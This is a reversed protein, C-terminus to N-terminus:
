GAPESDPPRVDRALREFDRAQHVLALIRVDKHRVEYIIRYSHILLERIRPDQLEPVVRGRETLTSLNSTAEIFDQAVVRASAPSDQAIFSLVEDLGDRAYETWVVRRRRSVM